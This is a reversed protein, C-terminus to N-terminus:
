IRLEGKKTSSRTRTWQEESRFIHKGPTSISGKRVKKEETIVKVGQTRKSIGPIKAGHHQGRRIRKQQSGTTIKLLKRGNDRSRRKM